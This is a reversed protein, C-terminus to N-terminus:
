RVEGLDGEGLGLNRLGAKKARQAPAKKAPAPKGLSRYKEGGRQNNIAKHPSRGM